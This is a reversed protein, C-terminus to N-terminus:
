REIILGGAAVFGYTKRKGQSSILDPFIILEDLEDWSEHLYTETLIRFPINQNQLEQFLTNVRKLHDEKLFDSPPLCIGLPIKKNESFTSEGTWSLAEAQWKLHGLYLPSNSIGLLLHGFREKTAFYALEANTTKNEADLLCFALLPDPLFSCLRQLYEALVDGAFFFRSVSLPLNDTIQEKYLVEQQETWLFYRSFDCSGRFLIVGLTHEALPTYLKQMTEKLWLGLSFFFSSDQVFLPKRAFPLDLEWLIKVGRSAIAHGQKLLLDIEKTEALYPILITNTNGEKEISSFFKKGDLYLYRHDAEM